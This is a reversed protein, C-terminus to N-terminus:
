TYNYDEFTMAGRKFPHSISPINSKSTLVKEEFKEDDEDESEEEEINIACKKLFHTTQVLTDAFLKKQSIEIKSLRQDEEM